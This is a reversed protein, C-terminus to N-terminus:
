GVTQELRSLRAELAKSFEVLSQKLDKLESRLQAVQECLGVNNMSSQAVQERTLSSPLISSMPQSSQELSM